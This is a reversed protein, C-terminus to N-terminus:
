AGAFLAPLPSSEAPSEAAHAAEHAVAAAMESDSGTAPTVTITGGRLAALEAIPLPAVAFSSPAWAAAAQVTESEHGAGSTVPVDMPAASYLVRPELNELLLREEFTAAREAAGPFLLRRLRSHFPKSSRDM